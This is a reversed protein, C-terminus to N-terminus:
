GPPASHPPPGSVLTALQRLIRETMGWVVYEGHRYSPVRREAGRAIVTSEVSADPATFTTLPVWFAAAVEESLALPADGRVTAVYPRVLVPVPASRPNLEDLAGLIQGDRRLDLGTEEWTERVATDELSADGPEERGGPLAVHGSWPDSEHEARKILLLELDGNGAVDRLVVAVAARQVSDADYEGATKTRKQLRATLRETVLALTHSHPM